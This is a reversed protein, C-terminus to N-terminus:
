SSSLINWLQLIISVKHSTIYSLSYSSLNDRNYCKGHSECIREFNKRSECNHHENVQSGSVANFLGSVTWSSSPTSHLKFPRRLYRKMGISMPLELRLFVSFLSQSFPLVPKACQRDSLRNSFLKV